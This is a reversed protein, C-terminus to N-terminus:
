GFLVQHVKFATRDGLVGGEGAAIPDPGLNLTACGGVKAELRIVDGIALGAITFIDVHAAGLRVGCEIPCDDLAAPLLTPGAHEPERHLVIGVRTDLPAGLCLECYIRQM